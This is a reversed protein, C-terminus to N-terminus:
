WEDGDYDDYDYDSPSSFDLMDTTNPVELLAPSEKLFQLTGEALARLREEYVPDIDIGWLANVLHDLMGESAFMLYRAPANCTENGYDVGVHDGDNYYRYVIRCIARVIEGAVTAAPGVDPVLEDFLKDFEEVYNRM